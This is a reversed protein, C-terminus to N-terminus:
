RQRRRHNGVAVSLTTLLEIEAPTGTIIVVEGPKVELSHHVIKDAISDYDEVVNEMQQTYSIGTIGIISVVIMLLIFWSSTKM